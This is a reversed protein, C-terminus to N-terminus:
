NEDDMKNENMLKDAMHMAKSLKCHLIHLAMAEELDEKSEGKTVMLLALTGVASTIRAMDERSFGVGLAEM